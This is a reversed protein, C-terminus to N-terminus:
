ALIAGIEEMEEASLHWSASAANGQLQGVSTVGSIVSSVEPHGLLWAHALEVMQSRTGTGM